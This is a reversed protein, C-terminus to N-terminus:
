KDKTVKDTKDTKGTKNTKNTKETKTFSRRLSTNISRKADILEIIKETIDQTNNLNKQNTIGESISAKILDLKLESNSKTKNMTLKGDKLNVHTANNKNLYDIIYEELPKKQEKLEKLDDKLQELEVIEDLIKKMKKTKERVLNDVKVFKMVHEKFESSKDSSSGSEQELNSGSESESGSDSDSETDSETDTDTGSEDEHDTEDIVDNDTETETTEKKLSNLEESLQSLQKSSKSLSSSSVDSASTASATTDQNKKIQKKNASNNKGAIFNNM